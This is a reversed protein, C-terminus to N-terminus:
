NSYDSPLIGINAMGAKCKSLAQVWAASNSFFCGVMSVKFEHNGINLLVKFISSCKMVPGQENIKRSSLKISENMGLTDEGLRMRM